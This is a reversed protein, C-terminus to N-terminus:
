RFANGARHFVFGDDAIDAVEVDLDVHGPQVLVIAMGLIRDFGLDIYIVDVALIHDHQCFAAQDIQAAGGAVGGEHHAIREGVLGQGLDLQPAIGAFVFILDIYKGLMKILLYGAKMKGLDAYLQVLQGVGLGSIETNWLIARELGLM